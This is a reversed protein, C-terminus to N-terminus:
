QSVPQDATNQLSDFGFAINECRHADSSFIFRGGNDKIFGIMKASPYPSTRVGRSMAGTNIEFFAGTKVLELVAKQWANIYRENEPDFLSGDENFKSILDFHGIIDAQTRNIVDGEILYYDELLRYIDGDYYAECANRLIDASEDVPIYVYGNYEPCGDIASRGNLLLRIYHVSGIVYDFGDTPYTSYYDQEVGAYFTIDECGLAKAFRPNDHLSSCKEKLATLVNLYEDVQEKRMCYSEDFFTYSHDSIGVIKLGKRAASRLMDAPTDSGDSYATHMHLDTLAIRNPDINFNM